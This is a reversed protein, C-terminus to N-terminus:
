TGSQLALIMEYLERNTPSYPEFKPSIAYDGSKCLMPNMTFSGSGTTAGNNVTFGIIVSNGNATFEKEVVKSTNVNERFIDVNNSDKAVVLGSGDTSVSSFDCVFKYRNGNVVNCDVDWALWTGSGSLTYTGDLNDTISQLRSNSPHMIDLVNKAGRDVLEVLEATIPVMERYVGDSSVACDTHGSTPTEDFGKAAAEGLDTIQSRTHTHSADAKGSLASDVEPKTYTTSQPAAANAKAVAADIEEGTYAGDYYEEAMM